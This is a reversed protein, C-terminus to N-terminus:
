VATRGAPKLQGDMFLALSLFLSFLARNTNATNSNDGSVDSSAMLEILVKM